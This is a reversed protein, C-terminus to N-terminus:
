VEVLEQEPVLILVQGLEQMLELGLEQLQM